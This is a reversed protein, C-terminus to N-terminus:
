DTRTPAATAAYTEGGDLMFRLGNKLHSSVAEAAEAARGEMVLEYIDQHEQCTVLPATPDKRVIAEVLWSLRDRQLYMIKLVEGNGAAHALALHFDYDAEAWGELEPSTAIISRQRDLTEAINEADPPEVQGAIRTVVLQEIAGRLEYHDAIEKNSMARVVARRQPSLTVFGQEELRELAAKIPTKSMKLEASLGRESLRDGPQFEGRVIKHLVIEYARNKLLASVRTNAQSLASAPQTEEDM